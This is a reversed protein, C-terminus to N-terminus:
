RSSDIFSVLLKKVIVGYVLAYFVMAVLHIKYNDLDPFVKSPIGLYFRGILSLLLGVLAGGIFLNRSKVVLVTLVAYVIPLYLILNTYGPFPKGTVSPNLYVMPFFSVLSGLIMVKLM